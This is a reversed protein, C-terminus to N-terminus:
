TGGPKGYNPFYKEQKKTDRMRTEANPTDDHVNQETRLFVLITNHQRTPIVSGRGRIGEKVGGKADKEPDFILMVAGTTTVGPDSLVMCNMMGLCNLFILHPAAGITNNRCATTSHKWSQITKARDAPQAKNERRVKLQKWRNAAALWRLPSPAPEPGRNPPANTWLVVEGKRGTPYVGCSKTYALAKDYNLMVGEAGARM